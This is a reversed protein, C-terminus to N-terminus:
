GQGDVRRDGPAVEPRVHWHFIFSELTAQDSECIAIQQMRLSHKECFYEALECTLIIM